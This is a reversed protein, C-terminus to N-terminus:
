KYSALKSIVKYNDGTTYERKILGVNPAYYEFLQSDNVQEKISTIKIMIVNSFHGAPVTVQENVSVVQRRSISDEWVANKSLPAKLIMESANDPEDLITSETYFEPLFFTRKIEDSSIKFVMTQQTGGNNEIVQIRNNNLAVIKRSFSAYENGEGQYIWTSHIKAPFYKTVDNIVEQSQSMSSDPIKNCGLLVLTLVIMALYKPM